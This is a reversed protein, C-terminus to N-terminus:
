LPSFQVEAPQPETQIEVVTPTIAADSTDQEVATKGNGNKKRKRIFLSPYRDRSKEDNRFIYGAAARVDEIGQRLYEAARHRLNRVDYAAGTPTSITAQLIRAGLKEARAIDELTVDCKGQARDWHESFFTGLAGLDDAKNVNTAGSRIAAIVDGLEPDDGWIYVAAKMLKIRLPKAEIMLMRLPDESNLLQRMLIDAQWFAKARDALNDYAFVDFVATRLAQAFLPRDEAYAQAYALGVGVANTASVKLLRVHAAPIAMLNHKLSALANEAEQADLQTEPIVEDDLEMDEEIEPDQSDDMTCTTMEETM